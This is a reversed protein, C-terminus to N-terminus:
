LIGQRHVQRSCAGYVNSERATRSNAVMHVLTSLCVAKEDEMLFLDGDLLRDVYAIREGPTPWEYHDKVCARVKSM